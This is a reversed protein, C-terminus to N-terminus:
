PDVVMEGPSTMHYEGDDPVEGSSTENRSETAGAPGREHMYVSHHENEKKCGTAGIAVAATCILLALSLTMGTRMM